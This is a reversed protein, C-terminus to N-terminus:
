FARRVELFDLAFEVWARMKGHTTIRMHYTGEDKKPSPLLQEKANKNPM